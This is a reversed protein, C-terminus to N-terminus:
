YWQKWDGNWVIKEPNIIDWEINKRSNYFECCKDFSSFAFYSVSEIKNLPIDIDTKYCTSEITSTGEINEFEDLVLKADDIDVKMVVLLRGDASMNDQSWCRNAFDLAVYENNTLHVFGEKTSYYGECDYPSLEKTTIKICQNTCIKKFRNYTTGHYLIM